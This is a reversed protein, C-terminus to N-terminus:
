KFSVKLKGYGQKNDGKVDHQKTSKSGQLM